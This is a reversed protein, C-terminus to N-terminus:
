SKAQCKKGGEAEEAGQAEVRRDALIAPTQVPVPAPM